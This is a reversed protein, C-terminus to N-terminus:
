KNKNMSDAIADLFNAAEAPIDKETDNKKVVYKGSVEDLVVGGYYELTHKYNNIMRAIERQEEDLSGLNRSTVDRRINDFIKEDIYHSEYGHGVVKVNKSIPNFIIANGKRAVNARMIAEAEAVTKYGYSTFTTNPSLWSSPLPDNNITNVKVPISDIKPKKIMRPKKMETFDRFVKQERADIFDKRGKALETHHIWRDKMYKVDSESYKECNTWRLPFDNDGM